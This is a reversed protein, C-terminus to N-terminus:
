PMAYNHFALGIQKLNNVSQSPPRPGPARDGGAGALKIGEALEVSSAAHLHVFGGSADRAPRTSSPIPLRPRGM